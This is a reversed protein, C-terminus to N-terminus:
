ELEKRILYESLRKMQDDIEKESKTPGKSTKKKKHKSVKPKDDKM